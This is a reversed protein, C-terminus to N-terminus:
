YCNRGITIASTLPQPLGIPMSAARGKPYLLILVKRPTQITIYYFSGLACATPIFCDKQSQFNLPRLISFICYGSIFLFISDLFVNIVLFGCLYQILQHRFLGSPKARYALVNGFMGSTALSKTGFFNKAIM